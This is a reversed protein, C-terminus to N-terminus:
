STLKTCKVGRQTEFSYEWLARDLDRMSVRCEVALARCALVYSWWLKFTERYECRLSWLARVDIIPYSNGAAAARCPESALHLLATATRLGVGRLTDLSWIRTSEDGSTLAIASQRRVDEDSNRQYHRRPRGRSKWECVLLFDDRTYFGAARAHDGALVEASDDGQNSCYREAWYPIKSKPFRMSFKTIATM